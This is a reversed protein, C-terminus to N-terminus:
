TRGLLPAIWSLFVPVLAGETLSGLLLLLVAVLGVAAHALVRGRLADPSPGDRGLHRALALFFGQGGLLCLAPILFLNPPFLATVGLVLGELGLRYVLAGATFGLSFGRLFLLLAVVPLGFLSLGCIWLLAATRLHTWLSETLLDRAAATQGGQWAHMAEELAEMTEAMMTGPLVNVALAGSIVGMALFALALGYFLVRGPKMSLRRRGTAPRREKLRIRGRNDTM